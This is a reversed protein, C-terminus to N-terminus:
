EAVEVQYLHKQAQFSLRFACHETDIRCKILFSRIFLEEKSVYLVEVDTVRKEYKKLCDHIDEIVKKLIEENSGLYIYSDLGYDKPYSGFERKTNLLDNLHEVIEQIPEVPKSPRFHSLLGM